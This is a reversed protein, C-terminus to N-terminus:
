SNNQHYNRRHEEGSTNSPRRLILVIDPIDGGCKHTGVNLHTPFLSAQAVVLEDIVFRAAYTSGCEVTHIVTPLTGVGGIFHCHSTWYYSPPRERGVFIAM